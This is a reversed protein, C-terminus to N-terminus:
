LNRIILLTLTARFNKTTPVGDSSVFRCVAGNYYVEKHSVCLPMIIHVLPTNLPPPAFRGGRFEAFM